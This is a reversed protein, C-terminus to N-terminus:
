VCEWDTFSEVVVVVVLLKVDVEDLLVNSKIADLNKLRFDVDLLLRELVIFVVGDKSSCFCFISNDSAVDEDEEDSPL